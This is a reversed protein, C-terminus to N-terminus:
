EPVGAARALELVMEQLVKLYDTEAKNICREDLADLAGTIDVVEERTIATKPAARTIVPAVGTWRMPLKGLKRCYTALEESIRRAEAIKDEESKFAPNVEASVDADSAGNAKAEERLSSLRLEAGVAWMTVLQQGMPDRGMIVFYPENPELKAYCDFAGPNLKTGM